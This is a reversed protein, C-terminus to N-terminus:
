KKMKITVAWPPPDAVTLEYNSKDILAEAASQVQRITGLTAAIGAKELLFARLYTLAVIPSWTYQKLGSHMYINAWGYLREIHEFPVAFDIDTKHIKIAEIITKLPLPVVDGSKDTKAFIGFGDRLRLEIAMRLQNIAADSHNDAFAFPRLNGYILQLASHYLAMPTEFRNKGVGVVGPVHQTYTAWDDILVLSDLYLKQTIGFVNTWFIEPADATLTAIGTFIHDTTRLFMLANAVYYNGWATKGEYENINKPFGHEVLARDSRNAARLVLSTEHEFADIFRDRGVSSYWAHVATIATQKPSGFKLITQHLEAKYEDIASM